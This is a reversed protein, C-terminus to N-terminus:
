RGEVGRSPKRLIQSFVRRGSPIRIQANAKLDNPLLVMNNAIAIIWWLEPSSYFRTSVLDIRDNADVTYIIDDPAPDIVPYEPSEWHEVGDITILRAFRLRSTDRIKVAM